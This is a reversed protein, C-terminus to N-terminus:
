DIFEQVTTRGAMAIARDIKAQEQVSPFNSQQIEPDLGKPFRIMVPVVRPILAGTAEIQKQAYYEMQDVCGKGGPCELCFGWNCPVTVGNKLLTTWTKINM